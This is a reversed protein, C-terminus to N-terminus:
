KPSVDIGRIARKVPFADPPRFRSRAKLAGVITPPNCVKDTISLDLWRVGLRLRESPARDSKPM